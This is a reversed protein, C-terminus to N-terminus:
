LYKELLTKTKRIGAAEDGSNGEFEIGIYGKFGSAKVLDILRKYDMMPQDGNKDFDYTKASVGKAFPLMETVGKYRDYEQKCGDQTTGWPHSICFNGFDPLTGVNSKNVQKMVDAIWDGKSSDSGHNEVVVNIDMTKAFEGLRSLSDISAAKKAASEGEGHLNVRVTLCGLFKAAEIWKKHNDVAVLRATDGPLALSGEDDVMILHNFVGADKSRKLLENLYQQNKGADKFSMKKGGFFGNVYEVADIGFDNKAMAPFDLHDMKGAQLARHLSWEALSIKLGSDKAAAFLMPNLLMAGTALLGQQVFRRRTSM